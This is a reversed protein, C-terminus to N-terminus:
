AGAVAMSALGHWHVIVVEIGDDAASAAASASASAPGSKAEAKASDLAEEDAPPEAETPPGRAHIQEAAQDSRSLARKEYRQM